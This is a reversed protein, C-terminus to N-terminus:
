AEVAITAHYAIGASDYLTVHVDFDRSTPNMLAVYTGFTAGALGGANVMVPVTLSDSAFTTALPAKKTQSHAPAAAALVLVGLVTLFAPKKM